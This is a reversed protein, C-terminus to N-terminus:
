FKQTEAGYVEWNKRKERAFYDLRRGYTMTEVLKYFAEPKRSHERRPERIIDRVSAGELIPKGKTALLVFECQMRINRGMGIKDKDWVITAKYEFGWADLLSFSSRLFMHTTWLYLVCNDKTPLNMNKLEEVKMTPYDVTGRNGESDYDKSSFGGFESYDWPPDITIVDFLGEININEADINQKATLINQDRKKKKEEKKRKKEAEIEELRQKTLESAKKDIEAQLEDDTKFISTSKVEREAQKEIPAFSQIDGKTFDTKENLIENRSEPKAKSIIDVGKSFNADREITNKSVNYENALKERTWQQAGNQPTASKTHQNLTTGKLKENEYRVGRLYSKQSETLNRRGLQHLIIWDIVENENEFQMEKTEYSLNNKNAIEFRNHGDIIFGNWTKISELIGDELCNKELQEFEEKTLDPVLDKFEKKIQM